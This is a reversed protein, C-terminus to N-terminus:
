KDVNQIDPERDSDPQLSVVLIGTFALFFTPKFKREDKVRSLWHSVLHLFFSFLCFDPLIINHHTQMNFFIYKQLALVRWAERRHEFTRTTKKNSFL